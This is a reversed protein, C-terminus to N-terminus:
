CAVSLETIPSRESARQWAWRGHEAEQPGPLIGDPGRTQLSPNVYRHEGGWRGYDPHRQELLRGKHARPLSGVM